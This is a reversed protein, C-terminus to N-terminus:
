RRWVAVAGESLAYVRGGMEWLAVVPAAPILTYDGVRPRAVLLGGGHGFVAWDGFALGARPRHLRVTGLTTEPWEVRPDSGRTFIRVPTGTRERQAGLLLDPWAAYVFAAAEDSEHHLHIAFIRWPLDFAEPARVWYNGAFIDTRGDGDVDALALGAQRSATYISYV